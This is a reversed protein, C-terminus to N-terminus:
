LAKEAQEKAALAAMRAEDEAVAKRYQNLGNIVREAMKLTDFQGILGIVFPNNTSNVSCGPAGDCQLSQTILRSVQIEEATPPSSM